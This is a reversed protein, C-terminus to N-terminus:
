DDDDDDGPASHLLAYKDAQDHSIGMVVFFALCASLAAFADALFRMASVLQQKALSVGASPDMAISLAEFVLFAVFILWWLLLLRPARVQRWAFADLDSPDSARAVERIVQYPRFLNLGPVLFGGVVWGRSYSLRRIGFSRLNARAQYLWILFVSATALHIVSQAAFLIQRTKAQAEEINPPVHIKAAQRILMRLDALDVGLAVGAVVACIVLLLYLFRSSPGLSIYLPRMSTGTNAFAPTHATPAERGRPQM